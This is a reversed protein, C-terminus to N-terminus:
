VCVCVSITQLTANSAPLILATGLVNAAVSPSLSVPTGADALERRASMVIGTAVTAQCHNVGGCVGCSDVVVGAPCCVGSPPLISACCAANVDVAVATGNCVGCADVSLPAGVTGCCRGNVDTKVGDGCCVGSVADIGGTCCAGASDYVGMAHTVSNSCSTGFLAPAAPGDCALGGYGAACVCVGAHCAHHQSAAAVGPYVCDDASACM